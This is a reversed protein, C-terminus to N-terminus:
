PIAVGGPGTASFVGNGDYGNYTWGTPATVVVDIYPGHWDAAAVAAPAATLDGQASCVAGTDAEFVVSATNLSRVDARAKSERARAGASKLALGVITALVAIVLIVIMMEILTFGKRNKM